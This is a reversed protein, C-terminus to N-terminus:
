RSFNTQAKKIYIYNNFCHAEVKIDIKIVFFTLWDNDACLVYVVRIVQIKFGKAKKSIKIWKKLTIKKFYKPKDQPVFSSPSEFGFRICTIWSTIVMSYLISLM